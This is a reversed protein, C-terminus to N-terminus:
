RKAWSEGWTDRYAMKEPPRRFIPGHGGGVPMGLPVAAATFWGDAIGLLERVDSECFCLLTTLVCGVGEARAALLANEVSPYVSAGGVVSPRDLGADTIAMYDPNFCFVLIAPVAGMNDALHDGAAITRQAKALVDGELREMRRSTIECYRQWQPKYLEQLRAKKAPNEVVVVRWPQQNGGTAAWTAARLIRELAGEPLPDPRLRRVARTTSMAEYLGIESM